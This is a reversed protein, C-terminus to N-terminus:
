QKSSQTDNNPRLTWRLGIPRGYTSDEKRITEVRLHADTKENVDQVSPEIVHGTVRYHREYKEELMFLQRFQPVKIVRTRPRSTRQIMKAIQYFRVACPTPLRM